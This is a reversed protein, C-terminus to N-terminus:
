YTKCINSGKWWDHLKKYSKYRIPAHLMACLRCWFFTNVFEGTNKWQFYLNYLHQHTDLFKLYEALSQPSDFNNVHIYSNFPSVRQYDEINAGM